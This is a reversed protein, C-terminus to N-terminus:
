VVCEFEKEERKKQEIEVRCPKWCSLCIYEHERKHPNCRVHYGSKCCASVRRGFFIDNIM